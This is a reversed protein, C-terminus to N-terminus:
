GAMPLFGLNQQDKDAPTGDANVVQSAPAAQGGPRPRAGRPEGGAAIGEVLQEAKALMRAPLEGKPYVNSLGDSAQVISTV